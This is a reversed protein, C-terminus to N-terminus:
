HCANKYTSNNKCLPIKICSTNHWKIQLPEGADKITETSVPKGSGYNIIEFPHKNINLLIILRSGANIKKSVFRTNDFHILEKIIL